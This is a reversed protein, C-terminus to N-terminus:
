NGDSALRNGGATMSLNTKPNVRGERWKILPLTAQIQLQGNIEM